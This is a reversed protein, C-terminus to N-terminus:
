VAHYLPLDDRDFRSILGEDVPAGDNGALVLYALMTRRDEESQELLEFEAVRWTTAARQPQRERDSVAVSPQM